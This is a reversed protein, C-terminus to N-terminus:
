CKAFLVLGSRAECTQRVDSGLGLLPTNSAAGSILALRWVSMMPLQHCGVVAATGTFLPELNSAVPRCRCHSSPVIKLQGLSWPVMLPPCLPGKKYGLITRLINEFFYGMDM